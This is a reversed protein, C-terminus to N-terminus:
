NSSFMDMYISANPYDNCPQLKCGCASVSEYASINNAAVTKNKQLKQKDM